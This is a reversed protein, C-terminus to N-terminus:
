ARSRRWLVFGIWVFVAQVAIRATAVVPPAFVPDPRFFDWLHLPMYALCILAFALAGWSHTKPLIAALGIAIQLVGALLVVLRAPLFPPVLVAFYDPAILHAVGGGIMVFAIIGMIFM